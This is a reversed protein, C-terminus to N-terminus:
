IDLHMSAKPVIRRLSQKEITPREAEFIDKWLEEGTKDSLEQLKAKIEQISIPKKVERCSFCIKGHQTDLDDIAHTQMFKKMSASLVDQAKRRERIALKMKRVIDDLALWARVQEKFEHLEEETPKEM